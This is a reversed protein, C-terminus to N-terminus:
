GSKIESNYENRCWFVCLIMEPREICLFVFSRVTHFMYPFARWAFLAAAKLGPLVSGQGQM